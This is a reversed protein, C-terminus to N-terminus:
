LQSLMAEIEPVSLVTPLKQSFKPLELLESPDQEVWGDTVLFSHFSRLSSINRALSRESLLCDEVLFRLFERM